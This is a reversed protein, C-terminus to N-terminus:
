QYRMFLPPAQARFGVAACAANMAQELDTLLDKEDEIGASIRVLDDPLGRQERVEKPISAHSM